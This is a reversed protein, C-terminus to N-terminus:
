KSRKVIKVKGKRGDVSVIDGTKIRVTASETGLVAPTKYERAVVAGHSLMGGVDTVVAGALPFVPTWAPNTTSCVLVEGPEFLHLDAACLMVKAPGQYTGPSVGVGVLNKGRDKGGVATHLAKKICKVDKTDYLIPANLENFVGFQHIRHGIDIENRKLLSAAGKKLEPQTLFFAEFPSDLLGRDSLQEGIHLLNKRILPFTRGMVFQQNERLVMYARTYRLIQKFLSARVPVIRGTWKKLERLTEKETSVRQRVSEQMSLSGPDGKSMSVLISMVTRPDEKWTPFMLNHVPDRHGYDDLFRNFKKLFKRDHKSLMATKGSLAYDRLAESRRVDGALGMLEVNTSVTVNEKLGGVLRTARDDADKFRMMVLFESLVNFLAEALIVSRFHIPTIIKLQELMEDLMKVSKRYVLKDIDVKQLRDMEKNFLASQEEWDLLVTGLMSLLKTGLSIAKLSLRPKIKAQDTHGSALIMDVAEPMGTFLERLFSVNIYPKGFSVTFPKRESTHGKLGLSGLTEYIPEVTLALISQEWPCMPMVIRENLPKQTWQGRERGIKDLEAKIIRERTKKGMGRCRMEVYNIPQEAVMSTIPRVQLLWLGQEDKAWEIDAPFGLKKELLLCMDAVNRIDGDLANVGRAEQRHVISKIDRKVQFRSPQTEGSVLGEGIGKIAEVVICGSGLPDKSFAVGSHVPEVKTQVLVAVTALGKL